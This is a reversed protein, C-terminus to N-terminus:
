LGSGTASAIQTGDPSWAIVLYGLLSGVKLEPNILRPRKGSEVVFLQGSYREIFAFNTGDPSWRISGYRRYKESTEPCQECLSLKDIPDPMKADNTLRTGPGAGVATMYVNGDEGIYALPDKYSVTEAHAAQVPPLLLGLTVSVICLIILRKMVM